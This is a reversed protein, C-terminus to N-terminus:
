GELVHIEIRISDPSSQDPLRAPVVGFNKNNPPQLLYHQAPAFQTRNFINFFEM